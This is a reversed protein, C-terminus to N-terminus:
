PTATEEEWEKPTLKYVPKPNATRISSLNLKPVTEKFFAKAKEIVEAENENGVMGLPFIQPVVRQGDKSVLYCRDVYGIYLFDTEGQEIFKNFEKAMMSSYLYTPEDNEDEPMSVDLMCFIKGKCFMPYVASTGLIKGDESLAITDIREGLYSENRLEEESFDGEIEPDNPMGALSDLAINAQEVLKAAEPANSYNSNTSCGVFVAVFFCLSLLMCARKM